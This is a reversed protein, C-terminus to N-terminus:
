TNWERFSELVGGPFPVPRFHISSVCAGSPPRTHRSEGNLKGFPTFVSQELPERCGPIRVIFGPCVPVCFEYLSQSVILHFYYFYILSSSHGFFPQPSFFTNGVRIEYQCGTGSQKPYLLLVFAAVHM